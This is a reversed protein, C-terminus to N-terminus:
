IDSQALWNRIKAIINPLLVFWQIYGVIVFSAWILCSGVMSLLVNQLSSLHLYPGVFSWFFLLLLGIPATLICLYVILAIGYEPNQISKTLFSIFVLTMLSVWIGLFVNRMMQRWM